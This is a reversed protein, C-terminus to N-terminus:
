LTLTAPDPSESGGDPLFTFAGCQANSYCAAQCGNLTDVGNVPTNPLNNGEYDAGQITNFSAECSADCYAAAPM